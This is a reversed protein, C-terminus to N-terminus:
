VEGVACWNKSKGKGRAVLFGLNTRWFEVFRFLTLLQEPMGGLCKFAEM